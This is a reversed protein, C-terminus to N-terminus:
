THERDDDDGEVIGQDIWDAEDVEPREGRSERFRDAEVTQAQEIRDAEPIEGDASLERPDIGSPGPELPDPRPSEPHEM